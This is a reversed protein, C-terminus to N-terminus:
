PLLHPMHSRRIGTIEKRKTLLRRSLCVAVMRKDFTGYCVTRSLWSPMRFHLRCYLFFPQDKNERIFDVAKNAILDQTYDTNRVPVVRTKGDRIECLSDTYYHHAHAQDLYGFFNDFGKLHPAGQSEADGLGWKGFMGTRYGADQLIEAVTIDQSRLAGKGDKGKANGRVYATGMHKGTMLACRSPACVTNGAYFRSFTAGEAGLQDIHPTEVRSHANFARVDGYGLDDALIFIINPKRTKQPQAYLGDIWLFGCILLGIAYLLRKM